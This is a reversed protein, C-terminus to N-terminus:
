DMAQFWFRIPKVHIYQKCCHRGNYPVMAGDISHNEKPPAYALFKESLHDLFPSLKAFKDDKNLSTNDAFQM